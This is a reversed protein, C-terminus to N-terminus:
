RGRRNTFFGAFKAKMGSTPSPTGFTAATGSIPTNPSKLSSPSSVNSFAPHREQYPTPAFTSRPSSGVSSRSKSVYSDSSSTETDSDYADDEDYSGGNSSISKRGRLRNSWRSTWGSDSRNWGTRSGGAPAFDTSSQPISVSNRIANYKALELSNMRKLRGSGISSGGSSSSYSRSCYTDREGSLLSRLSQSASRILGLVSSGKDRGEFSSYSGSDSESESYSGSDSGYFEIEDRVSGPLSVASPDFTFLDDQNEPLSIPNPSGYPTYGTLDRRFSLPSQATPSIDSESTPSSSM